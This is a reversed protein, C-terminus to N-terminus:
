GRRGVGFFRRIWVVGQESLVARSTRSNQAAAGGDEVVLGTSERVRTREGVSAGNRFGGDARALRGLRVMRRGRVGGRPRSSHVGGRTEFERVLGAMGGRREASFVVRVQARTRVSTNKTRSPDQAHRPRACRARFRTRPRPSPSRREVVFVVVVVRRLGRAPRRRTAFPRARASTSPRKM